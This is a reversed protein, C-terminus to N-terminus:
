QFFLCYGSLSNDKTELKVSYVYESRHFLDYVGPNTEFVFTVVAEATSRVVGVSQFHLKVFVAVVDNREPRRGIVVLAPQVRQM